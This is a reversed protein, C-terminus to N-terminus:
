AVIFSTSTFTSLDPFLEASNAKLMLKVVPKVLWTDIVTVCKVGSLPGFPDLPGSYLAHRSIPLGFLRWFLKHWTKEKETQPDAM